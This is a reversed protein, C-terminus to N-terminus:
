EEGADAGAPAPEDWIGLVRWLTRAPAGCLGTDVCLRRVKGVSTRVLEAAQPSRAAERTVARPIGNARGFTASPVLMRRAMIGLLVPTAVSLVQRRVWGLKPVERRLYNRAFSLHRAEETVHIRMIREVLPHGDGGRLRQRQVYDIPDEGGLVFLFFLPPFRRSMPVVLHEAALREYWPLGTVDLGSRNVFEQFMMTHHSEEVVEHHLYRFEPRGNPLTFAFRLLGRQLVNEFMWGVRMSTAVRALGIRARVEPPQARYWATAALPDQDSLEWRPDAPDVALEPSDWDVDAYADFHKEVSQRNLRAVIGAFADDAKAAPGASRATSQHDLTATM